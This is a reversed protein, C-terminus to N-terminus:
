AAASNNSSCLPTQLHARSSPFRPPSFHHLCLLGNRALQALISCAPDRLEKMEMGFILGAISRFDGDPGWVRGGLLEDQIKIVVRM